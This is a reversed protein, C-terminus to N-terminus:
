LLLGVKDLVRSSFLSSFTLTCSIPLLYTLIKIRHIYLSCFYTKDVFSIMMKTFVPATVTSEIEAKCCPRLQQM